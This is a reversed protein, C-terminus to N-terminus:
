ELAQRSRRVASAVGSPLWGDPTLEVVEMPLVVALLSPTAAPDATATGM